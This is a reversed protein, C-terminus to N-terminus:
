YLHLLFAFYNQKIVFLIHLSDPDYLQRHTTPPPSKDLVSGQFLKVHECLVKMERRPPELQGKPSKTPVIQDDCCAQCPWLKLAASESELM